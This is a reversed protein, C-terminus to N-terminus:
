TTGSINDAVWDVLAAQYTIEPESGASRVHAVADSKDLGLALLVSAAFMGTRGIGAACHVLVSEGGAINRATEKVLRLYADRDEPVYFDRIPFSIWDFPLSGAEIAKAYEPSKARIEDMSTFSIVKQIGKESIELVAPEYQEYYGPMSHLYIKGPISGPLELSRFM